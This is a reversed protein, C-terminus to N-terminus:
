SAGHPVRLDDGTSESASGDVAPAGDVDEDTGLNAIMPFPMKALM